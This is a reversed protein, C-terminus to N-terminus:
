RDQQSLIIQRYNNLRVALIKKDAVAQLLACGLEKNHQCDRFKCSGLYPRFDIFGDIIKHQSLDCYCTVATLRHLLTTVCRMPTDRIPVKAGVQSAHVRLFFAPKGNSCM